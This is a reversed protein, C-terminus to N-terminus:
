RLKYEQVNEIRDFQPKHGYKELWESVISTLKESLENTEDTKKPDFADWGEAADGVEYFAREELRELVDTSDVSVSYPVVEGIYILYWDDGYHDKADQVCEEISDFNGNKWVETYKDFEWTYQKKESM